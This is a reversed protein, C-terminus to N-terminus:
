EKIRESLRKGFEEIGVKDVEFGAIEMTGLVKALPLEIDTLLNTQEAEELLVDTKDFLPKLVAAFSVAEEASGMENQYEPVSIGYELCLHDIEYNTDSPRLLYASLMLDGCVNKCNIGMKAALRHLEKTNYSFKKIDSEFFAKVFDGFEECYSPMVVIEDGFAFYLDSITGDIVDIYFYASDNGIKELLIKSSTCTTKTIERPKEEVVEVKADNRNLGFKDILSFLELRAFEAAALSKDGDDIVYSSANKDIPANTRITGLDLSLYAKEKDNRLKERVGKKIDIEDLNEYIYDINKFNQILDLATKAGVGAVGPINDSSDGQLAKVQILEAPTVGYEEMIANEDYIDTVTQ